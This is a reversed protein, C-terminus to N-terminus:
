QINEQQSIGIYCGIHCIACRVQYGDLTRVAHVVATGVVHQLISVCSIISSLATFRLSTSFMMCGEPSLWVNGGRGVTYSCPLITSTLENSCSDVTCPTGKGRTQRGAVSIFGIDDPLALVLPIKRLVILIRYSYIM